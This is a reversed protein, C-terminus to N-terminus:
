QVYHEQWFIRQLRGFWNKPLPASFCFTKLRAKAFVSCSSHFTTGRLTIFGSLPCWERKGYHNHRAESLALTPHYRQFSSTPICSSTNGQGRVHLCPYCVELLQSRSLLLSQSFFRRLLLSGMEALQLKVLLMPQRGLQDRGGIVNFM